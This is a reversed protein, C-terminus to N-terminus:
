YKPISPLSEAGPSKNTLGGTANSIACSAMIDTAHQAVYGKLLDTASSLPLHTSSAFSPAAVSMVDPSSLASPSASAIDPVHSGLASCLAKNALSQQHGTLAAPLQPAAKPMLNGLGQARSKLPYILLFALAAVGVCYKLRHAVM